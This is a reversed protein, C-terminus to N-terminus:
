CVVNRSVHTANDRIISRCEGGPTGEVSLDIHLRTWAKRVVGMVESTGETVQPETSVSVSPCMEMLALGVAMDEQSARPTQTVKMFRTLLSWARVCAHKGRQM